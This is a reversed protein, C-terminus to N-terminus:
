ADAERDAHALWAEVAAPSGHALSPASNHLFLVLERLYALSVEDGRLVAVALNNELVSSLFRGPRQRHVLYDRLGERLHGPVNAFDEERCDPLHPAIM